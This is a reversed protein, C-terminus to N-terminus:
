RPAAGRAGPQNGRAHRGHGAQVGARAPRGAQRGAARPAERAEEDGAAESARQGRDGRHSAPLPLRHQGGAAEPRQRGQPLLVRWVRDGRAPVVLRDAQRPGNRARGRHRRRGGGRLRQRDRQHVLDQDGPLRERGAQDDGRLRRRHPRARRGAPPLDGRGPRRGMRRRPRRRDGGPRPAPLGGGRHGGQPVGPVLRLHPEARRAPDRQGTGAPVTSKMVLAHGGDGAAAVRGGSGALSGRRGFLDAAHGRLLLSAAGRRARGGDGHHLDAARPKAGPAGDIGPEHIPVEGRSLADIKAADIDMAIVRQGLEAFCSATVLGM